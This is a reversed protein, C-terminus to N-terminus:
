VMSDVFKWARDATDLDFAILTGQGRTQDMFGYKVQMQELSKTVYAGVDAAQQVLNEAAMTNLIVQCQQLRLPDGM